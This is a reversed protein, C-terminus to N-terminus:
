IAFLLNKRIVDDPTTRIRDIEDEFSLIPKTPTPTLFDAIYKHPLITANMYPFDVRDFKRRTEDIWAQYKPQNEPNQLLKFSAMIEILPSFAFRVREIDGPSLQLTIM